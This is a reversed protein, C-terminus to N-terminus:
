PEVSTKKIMGILMMCIQVKASLITALNDNDVFDIADYALSYSFVTSVFVPRM